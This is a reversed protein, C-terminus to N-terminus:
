LQVAVGMEKALDAIVKLEETILKHCEPRSKYASGMPYDTSVTKHYQNTLKNLGYNAYSVTAVGTSEDEHYISAEIKGKAAVDGQTERLANWAKEFEEGLGHEELVFKKLETRSTDRRTLGMPHADAKVRWVGKEDDWQVLGLLLGYVWQKLNNEASVSAGQRLNHGISKMARYWHYNVHFVEGDVEWDKHRVDYERLYRRVGNMAFAPAGHQRRFISVRDTQDAVTTVELADDAIGLRPVLRELVQQAESTPVCIVFHEKAELRKSLPLGTTDERTSLDNYGLLPSSRQMLDSIASGLVTNRFENASEGEQAHSLIWDSVKTHSATAQYDTMAALNQDLVWDVLADVQNSPDAQAELANCSHVYLDALDLDVKEEFGEQEMDEVHLNLVFPTPSKRAVTHRRSELEKAVATRLGRLDRAVDEAEKAKRACQDELESVLAKAQFIAERELLGATWENMSQNWDRRLMDLEGRNMLRVVMNKSMITSIAAEIGDATLADLDQQIGEEVVKLDRDLEARSAKLEKYVANYLATTSTARAAGPIQNTITDLKEKTGALKAEAAAAIKSFESKVMTEFRARESAAEEFMEEVLECNPTVAAAKLDSVLTSKEPNEVLRMDEMYQIAHNSMDGADMLLDGLGKQLARLGLHKRVETLNYVFESVGVSGVWGKKYNFTDLIDKNNDDSSKFATSISTTSAFIGKALAGCLEGVKKYTGGNANKNNVLYVASFPKSELHTEEGGLYRFKLLADGQEGEHISGKQGPDWIHGRMEDKSADQPNKFEMFFDLDLLAGAANPFVRPTKNSSLESTFVDPLLFYGKIDVGRCDVFDENLMQRVAMATDMFMGSGTGGALSGVIHVDLMSGGGEGLPEFDEDPTGAQLVEQIAHKISRKINAANWFFALRGFMRVQGAGRDLNNLGDLVRNNALPMWREFWDANAADKVFYQCDKAAVSIVESHEFVIDRPTDLAQNRVAPIRCSERTGVPDTDFVMFKVFNPAGDHGDYQGYVEFFRKKLAILTHAGTGGLGIFLSKRIKPKTM